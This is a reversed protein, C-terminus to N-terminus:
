ENTEDLAIENIEDIKDMPLNAKLGIDINIHKEPALDGRLKYALDLYKHRVAFDNEIRDPETMSSHIKVAKLGEHHVRILEEDPILLKFKEVYGLEKLAEIVGLNNVIEGPKKEITARSYGVENLIATTTKTEKSVANKVIAIALKKQRATPM